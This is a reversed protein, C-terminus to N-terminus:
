KGSSAGNNGRDIMAQIENLRAETGVDSWLGPYYEATVKDGAMYERLIPALPFRGPSCDSFLAKRYVGIGSFTLCTEGDARALGEELMFDGEPHQPPNDVLVLHAVGEPEKPLQNFDYDTWIDGNVVIFPEDGLVSLAHFIGGGTEFADQPERSYEIHARYRLGDGLFEEIQLGLWGTNIVLESVGAKVLAEIHYEILAKGAARLLPKPTTDTLPRMREGRGAALIMAKM